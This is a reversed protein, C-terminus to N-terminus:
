SLTRQERKTKEVLAAPVLLLPRSSRAIMPALLTILTKGGGVRVICFIGPSYHLEFLAQAQVPNLKWPSGPRIVMPNIQEVIHALDAAGWSRRPLDRVRRFEASDQVAEVNIRFPAAPSSM